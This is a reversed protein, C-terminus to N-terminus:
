PGADETWRWVEYKPPENYVALMCDKPYGWKPRRPNFPIRGNLFYVAARGHLHDRHWNSGVAAPALLFIRRTVSCRGWGALTDDCKRAWPTIKGFPPNLWADGAIWVWPRVLSNHEVGYWAAAKANKADAALDIAFEEIGFKRKVARIFHPPTAYDQKSKGRAFSAGTKVTM